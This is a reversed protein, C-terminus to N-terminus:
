GDDHGRAHHRRPLAAVCKDIMSPAIVSCWRRFRRRRRPRYRCPIAQLAIGIAYRKGPKDQRAIVLDRDLRNEDEVLSTILDRRFRPRSGLWVTTRSDPAACRGSSRGYWPQLM